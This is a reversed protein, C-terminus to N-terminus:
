EVPVCWRWRRASRPTGPSPCSRPPTFIRARYDAGDVTPPLIFSTESYGFEQAIAQMQGDTLNQGDYVVALQNGAYARDSFVDIIEFALM